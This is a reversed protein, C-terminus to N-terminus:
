WNSYCYLHYGSDLYLDDGQYSKSQWVVNEPFVSGFITVYLAAQYNPLIPNYYLDTGLCTYQGPQTVVEYVTDPFRDSEVRNQIVSAVYLNQTYGCNQSEGSVVRAITDIDEEITVSLYALSLKASDPLATNAPAILGWILLLLLQKM